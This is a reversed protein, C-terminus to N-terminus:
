CLHNRICRVYAFNVSLSSLAKEYNRQDVDDCVAYAVVEYKKDKMIDYLHKTAFLKFTNMLDIGFVTKALENFMDSKYHESRINKVPLQDPFQDFIEQSTFGASASVVGLNDLEDAYCNAMLTCLADTMDRSVKEGVFNNDQKFQNIAYIMDLKVFILVDDRDKKTM